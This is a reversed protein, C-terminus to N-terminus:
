IKEFIEDYEKQKRKMEEIIEPPVEIIEKTKEPRIYGDWKLWMALSDVRWEKREFHFVAVATKEELEADALISYIKEGDNEIVVTKNM